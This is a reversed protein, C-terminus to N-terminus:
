RPSIPQPTNFIMLWRHTWKPLINDERERSARLTLFQVFGGEVRADVVVREGGKLVDHFHNKIFLDAADQMETLQMPSITADPRYAILDAVKQRLDDADYDYGFSHGGKSHTWIAACATCRWFGYRHSRESCRSECSVRGGRILWIEKELIQREADTPDRFGQGEDLVFWEHDLAIDKMWRLSPVAVMNHRYLAFESISYTSFGTLNNSNSYFTLM